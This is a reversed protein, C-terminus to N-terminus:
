SGVRRRPVRAWSMGTGEAGRSLCRATNSESAACSLHFLWDAVARGRGPVALAPEATLFRRPRCWSRESAGGGARGSPSGPDGCRPAAVAGTLADRGASGRRGAGGRAAASWSPGSGASVKGAGLALPDWPCGLCRRADEDVGGGARDGARGAWVLTPRTRVARGAARPGVPRTPTERRGACTGSVDRPWPASGPARELPRASGM